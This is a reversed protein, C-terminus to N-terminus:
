QLSIKSKFLEVSSDVCLCIRHPITITYLRYYGITPLKTFFKIKNSASSTKNLKRSTLKSSATENDSCSMMKVFSCLSLMEAVIIADSGDEISMSQAITQQRLSSQWYM